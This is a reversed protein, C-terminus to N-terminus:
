ACRLIKPNLKLIWQEEFYKKFLVMEDTLSVFNIISLGTNSIRNSPLQPLYSAMRTLNLGRSIGM